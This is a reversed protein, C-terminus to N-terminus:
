RGRATIVHSGNAVGVTNWTLTYPAATDEAGLVAGDLLFQM